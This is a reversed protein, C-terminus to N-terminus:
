RLDSRIADHPVGLREAAYSAIVENLVTDADLRCRTESWAGQWARTRERGLALAARRLATGSSTTAIQSFALLLHGGYEAFTGPRHAIAHLRRLGRM